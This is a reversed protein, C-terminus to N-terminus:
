GAKQELALLRREHDEVRPALAREDRLLDRVDNVARAVAVLETVLRIETESVRRELADLRENTRDLRENTRDLRENTQRVADRIEILVQTALDRPGNKKRSAV